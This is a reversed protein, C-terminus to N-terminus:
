MASRDVKCEVISELLNLLLSIISGYDIVCGVCFLRLKEISADGYVMIQIRRGEPQKLPHMIFYINSM